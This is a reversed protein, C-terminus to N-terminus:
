SGARLEKKGLPVVSLIIRGDSRLYKQAVRQVGAATATEYRQLDKKLYGPDGLFVNYQNLVDTRGGFGGVSELQYIYSARFGNRARELERSQIGDKKLEEINEDIAQELEKLTHGPKATATIHFQGAIEGGFEFGSVDQAIQREYVLSKYLRSNKGHALISALLDLEADDKSYNPVSPWVIYLRPLQVRDEMVLYKKGTVTTERPQVKPVDQIKKLGGFYKEVLERTKKVDIDGGICLSTNNPGYYHRFFEMVDELTANSLDEQTGITLWHYPHDPPYLNENILKGALGYPQNEYNQRRENKVVDRQNDLKAQDMADLLFGMRDSELYLALELFNSPVLEWYNTRDTNTSGNLTGGAEQLSKFHEGKGVHASGQFMMHEFLHAFGTKGPKERGSGVHYWVNVGVIPASHDEHLIVNLGNPLVYKEFPINVQTRVASPLLFTLLFLLNRTKM